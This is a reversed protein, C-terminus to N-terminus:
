LRKNELVFFYQTRCSPRASSPSHIVELSPRRRWNTQTFQRFFSFFRMIRCAALCSDKMSRRSGSGHKPFVAEPYLTQEPDNFVAFVEVGIGLGITKTARRCTAGSLIKGARCLPGQFVRMTRKFISTSPGELPSSNVPSVVEERRWSEM